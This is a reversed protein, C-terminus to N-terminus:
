VASFDIPANFMNAGAREQKLICRMPGTLYTVQKLRSDTLDGYREMVTHVISKMDTTYNSYDAQGHLFSGQNSRVVYLKSDRSQVKLNLHSAALKTHHLEVCYPGDKQRLVFGRSLRGGLKRAALYEVLYYLKHLAFYTLTPKAQTILDVIKLTDLEIDSRSEGRQKKTLRRLTEAFFQCDALQNAYSRHVLARQGPHYLPVLQRGYWSRASRIDTALKMGHPELENLAMLAISGLAVVIKPAVLDVQRKLFTACNAIETRNPTANNGEPDKPNCLVANTVFVDYRTLGVHSLLREFNHGAKDGHFPISSADAGLRGPAEGVFMVPADVPGSARGLIRLSQCMRACTVCARVEDCLSDFDSEREVNREFLPATRERLVGM